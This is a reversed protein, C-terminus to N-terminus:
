DEKSKNEMEKKKKKVYEDNKKIMYSAIIIVVFFFLFELFIDFYYEPNYISYKEITSVRTKFGFYKLLEAVVTFIVSIAFIERTKLIM